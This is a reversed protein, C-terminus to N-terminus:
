NARLAHLQSPHPLGGCEPCRQPTARLDYGCFRCSGAKSQLLAAHWAQFWRLMRWLAMAPLIATVLLVPWYPLVFRYRYGEFRAPVPGPPYLFPPHLLATRKIKFGLLSHAFTHRRIEASWKKYEKNKPDRFGNPENPRLAFVTLEFGDKTCDWALTEGPVSEPMLAPIPGFYFGGSKAAERANSWTVATWIFLVASALALLYFLIRRAKKVFAYELL